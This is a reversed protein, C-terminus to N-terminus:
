GKKAADAHVVPKASGMDVNGRFQAGDAVVIKPAKVNGDVKASSVLEIREDASVDGTLQGEITVNKAHVKAEVRARTGIRLDGTLRITGKVAGEILVKESGSVTGEITVNPGFFTGEFSPQPENTRPQPHPAAPVDKTFLAM